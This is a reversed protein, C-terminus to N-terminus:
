RKQGARAARISDQSQELGLLARDRVAQAVVGWSETRLDEEALTLARQFDSAAEKARGLALLAEGRSVWLVAANADLGIAHTLAEIRSVLERQREARSPVIWGRLRQWLSSDSM